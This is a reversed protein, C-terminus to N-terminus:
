DRCRRDEAFARVDLPEARLQTGHLLQDPRVLDAEHQAHVTLAHMLEHVLLAERVRHRTERLALHPAAAVNFPPRLVDAADDVVCGSIM